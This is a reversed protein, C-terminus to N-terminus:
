QALTIRVDTGGDPYDDYATQLSFVLDKLVTGKPVSFLVAFDTQSGPLMSPGEDTAGGRKDYEIPAYSQGQEDTLGTNHPHIYGLIAKVASKQANKLRCRVIVLEETDGTPAFTQKDPLFQSDYSAARDVGLVAFRWKGTFLMQGVKGRTGQVENAGGAPSAASTNPAATEDTATTTDGGNVKIEYSGVGHRVTTGNMARAMDALPVYPRGNILRIDTSVTQGGVTLHMSALALAATAAGTSLLLAAAFGRLPTNWLKKLQPKLPNPM